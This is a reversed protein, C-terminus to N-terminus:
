AGGIDILLLPMTSWGVWRHVALFTLRADDEGSMTIPEVGTLQGIRECIATANSAERVTANAVVILEDVDRRRAAQTANGVARMLRSQGSRTLAGNTDIADALRTAFKLCFVAGPGAGAHADVVHLHATNSGIDLVGVRM